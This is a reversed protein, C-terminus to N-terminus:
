LWVIELISRISGKLVIMSLTFSFEESGGAVIYTTPNDLEVEIAGIMSAEVSSLRANLASKMTM